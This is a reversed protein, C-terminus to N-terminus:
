DTIYEFANSRSRSFSVSNRTFSSSHVRRFSLHSDSSHAAAIIFNKDFAEFIYNVRNNSNLKFIGENFQSTEGEDSKGKGLINMSNFTNNKWTLGYKGLTVSLFWDFLKCRFDISQNRCPWNTEILAYSQICTLSYSKFKALFSKISFRGDYVGPHNKLM